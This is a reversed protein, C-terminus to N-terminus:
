RNMGYKLRYERFQILINAALNDKTEEPDEPFLGKVFEVMFGDQEASEAAEILNLALDRAEEPSLQIPETFRKDKIEVFPQKSNKGYGSEVMITHFIPSKNHEPM